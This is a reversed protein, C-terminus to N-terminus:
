LRNPHFVLEAPYLTDKLIELTSSRLKKKKLYNCVCLFNCFYYM